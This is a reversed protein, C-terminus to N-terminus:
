KHEHCYWAPEVGKANVEISDTPEGDGRKTQSLYPLDQM